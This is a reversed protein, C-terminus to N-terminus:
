QFLKENEQCYKEENRRPFAQNQFHNILEISIKKFSWCDHAMFPLVVGLYKLNSLSVHLTFGAENYEKLSANPIKHREM